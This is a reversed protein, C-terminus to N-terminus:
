MEATQSAGCELIAALAERIAARFEPLLTAGSVEAHNDTGGIILGSGVVDGLNITVNVYIEM